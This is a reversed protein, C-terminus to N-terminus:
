LPPGQQQPRGLKMPLSTPPLNAGAALMLLSEACDVQEAVMALVHTTAHASHIRGSGPGALPWGRLVTHFQLLNPVAGIATMHAPFISAFQSRAKQLM